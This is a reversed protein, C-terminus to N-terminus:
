TNWYQRVNCVYHMKDLGDLAEEVFACVIGFITETPFILEKQEPYEHLDEPIAILHQGKKVKLLVVCCTEDSFDHAIDDAGIENRKIYTASNFINQTMDTEDGTYEIPGMPMDYYPYLYKIFIINETTKPSREILNNLVIISYKVTKVFLDDIDGPTTGIASKETLNIDSYIDNDIVDRMINIDKDTFPLKHRESEPLTVFPTFTDISINYTSMYFNRIYIYFERQDIRELLENNVIFQTIPSSRLTYIYLVVKEIPTANNNVWELSSEVFRDQKIQNDLSNIKDYISYCDGKPM